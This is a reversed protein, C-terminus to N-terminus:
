HTDEANVGAYVSKPCFEFYNIPLEAKANEIVLKIRLYYQKSPDLSQTVLIKRYKSNLSRLNTSGGQNWSDMEKMYGRNHM